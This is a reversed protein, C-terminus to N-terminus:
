HKSRKILFDAIVEAVTRIQLPSYREDVPISIAQHYLVNTLGFVVPWHVPLFINQRFLFERLDDRGAKLSLVYFSYYDVKHLIGWPKLYRDLIKYRASREAQAQALGSYLRPLLNVSMMSVRRPTKQLDLCREAQKFRALYVQEAPRGNDLFSQKLAKAEYKLPGFIGANAANVKLPFTSVLQSGDALFTVKRLSNFAAWEGDPNDERVIPAFVQDYIVTKRATLEEPIRTRQGFYDIVYLVDFRRRKLAAWDVSLDPRVHYFEFATKHEKLVDIIIGCLYDPMLFRRRSLGGKLLLRLSSRGSDTMVRHLADMYPAEGGFPKM